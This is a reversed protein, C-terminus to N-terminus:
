VFRMVQKRTQLLLRKRSVRIDMAFLFSWLPIQLILDAIKRQHGASMNHVNDLLIRCQRVCLAQYARLLVSSDAFGGLKELVSLMCGAKEDNLSSSTSGSIMRYYYFSRHLMVIREARQILDPAIFVDEYASFAPFRLGSFLSAQFCIGALHGMYDRHQFLKHILETATLVSVSQQDDPVISPSSGRFRELPSIAMAAGSSQLMELLVEGADAALLDDGDLFMLYPASVLELAANRTQGVNRYQVQRVLVNDPYRARFNEFIEPTDDTSSDNVLIVQMQEMGLTQESLSALTQALYAGQNHAVIMVSLVPKNM